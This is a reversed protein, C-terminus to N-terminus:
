LLVPLLGLVALRLTDKVALSPVYLLEGTLRFMVTTNGVTVQLPPAPVFLQPSAALQLESVTGFEESWTTIPAGPGSKIL